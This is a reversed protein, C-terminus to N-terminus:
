MVTISVSNSSPQSEYITDGSYKAQFTHRGRFPFTLTFTCTGNELRKSAKLSKGNDYLWVEGQPTDYEGRVTILVTARENVEARESSMDLDVTAPALFHQVDDVEVTPKPLAALANLFDRDIASLQSELSEFRERTKKLM